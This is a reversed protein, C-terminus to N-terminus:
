ARVIGSIRLTNIKPTSRSSKEYPWVNAIVTLEPDPASEKLYSKKTQEWM